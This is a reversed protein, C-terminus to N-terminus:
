FVVIIRLDYTDKGAISFLPRGDEGGYILVGSANLNHANRAMDEISCQDNRVVAIWSENQPYNELFMPFCVSKNMADEPLMLNSMENQKSVNFQMIVALGEFALSDKSIYVGTESTDSYVTQRMTKNNFTVHQITISSKWHDYAAQASSAPQFLLILLIPSIVSAQVLFDCQCM